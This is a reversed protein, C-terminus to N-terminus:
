ELIEVKVPDLRKGKKDATVKVKTGVKLDAFAADAEGKSVKTKANFYYEYKVGGSEVYIETQMPVVKVITGEVVSQSTPTQALAPLAVLTVLLWALTRAM